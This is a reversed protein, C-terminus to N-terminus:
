NSSVVGRIWAEAVQQRAYRDGNRISLVIQAYDSNTVKLVFTENTDHLNVAVIYRM